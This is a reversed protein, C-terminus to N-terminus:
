YGLAFGDKRHDSGGYLVGREWDIWIAQAGGIPGKPPQVIFGRKTFEAEHVARLRAEMEVTKTGPLPFLRPLEIARQVDMGHDVLKSIFYAHGMAQYHGGMVGFPMVTRGDRVVMGPIITHMPRKRPALENPHGQKLSFSQGRNHLLVGYKKSMMGTGYPHFISNIFSIANRDKDVISIYVTDSHEVGDIIQQADCAKSFDIQAALKDALADSLLYDVDVANQSPDALYADRAAYALRTAEVEAHLNDASLPDKSLELRSLIKLIMLAIIGQGNPPCEYIIWGKYDSKIPKVYEGAAQSFDEATHLGGAEQLRELMDKAIEGKYFAERGELGILELADALLPQYQMMGAEPAAGNDLFTKRSLSDASLIEVQQAIDAVVRPSLVYGERAMKIAPALIEKMTMRGHDAVLRIWADIAGPITVAHPSSRGIESLGMERLTQASAAAPARGSGNYALINDQGGASYLAFCDGGIGTSGPEVVCQVACAGIAADVANGGAKLIEIATLTSAPHSTAAMGNSGVAVSHGPLEFDRTIKM